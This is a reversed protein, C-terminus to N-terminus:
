GNGTHTFHLEDGQVAKAAAKYLVCQILSYKMFIHNILMGKGKSQFFIRLVCFSETSIFLLGFGRFVLFPNRLLRQAM